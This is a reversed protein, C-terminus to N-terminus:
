PEAPAAEDSADGEGADDEAPPKFEWKHVAVDETEKGEYQLVLKGASHLETMTTAMLEAFEAVYVLDSSGLRM